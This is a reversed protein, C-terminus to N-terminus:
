SRVERRLFAILITKGPDFWSEESSVLFNLGWKAAFEAAVRTILAYDHPSCLPQITIIPTGDADRIVVRVNSWVGIRLRCDASASFDPCPEGRLLHACVGQYNKARQYGHRALFASERGDRLSRLNNVDLPNLQQEAPAPM